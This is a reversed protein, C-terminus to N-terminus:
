NRDHKGHKERYLRQMLRELEALCPECAFFDFGEQPVGTTQCDKFCCKMQEAM